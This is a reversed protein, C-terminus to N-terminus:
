SVSSIFRCDVPFLKGEKSTVAPQAVELVKEEEVPAPPATVEPNSPEEPKPPQEPVIPQPPQNEM